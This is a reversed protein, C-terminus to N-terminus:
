DDILWFDLSRISFFELLIYYIIIRFKTWYIKFNQYLQVSSFNGNFLIVNRYDIFHIFCWIPRIYFEFISKYFSRVHQYKLSIMFHMSCFGTNLHFSLHLFRCRQSSRAEPRSALLKRKTDENDASIDRIMSMKCIITM